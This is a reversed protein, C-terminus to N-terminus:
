GSQPTSQAADIRLGLPGRPVQITMLEGQRVIVVPVMEGPTGSRTHEVLEDPAVVRDDGYRVIMDGFLLGADAAPSDAMVDAVRVRNTQGLAFLYRDYGDDGLEDRVSVRQEALSAMEDEFRPTDLWEERTAQDRLYMEAMALADSERKMDAARNPDLGGAILAREMESKSYDVPPAPPPVDTQPDVPPEAPAAVLAAGASRATLRASVEELQQQLRQREASEGALRAELQRIRAELDGAADGQTARRTATLRQLAIAPDAVPRAPGAVPQDPASSPGLGTALLAGSAVLLIGVIIRRLMPRDPRPRNDGALAGTAVPLSNGGM